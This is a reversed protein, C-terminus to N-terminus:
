LAPDSTLNRRPKLVAEAVDSAAEVEALLGRAALLDTEDLAAKLSNVAGLLKQRSADETADQKRSRLAAHAAAADEILESRILIARLDRHRDPAYFIERAAADMRDAVAAVQKAVDDRMATASRRLANARMHATTIAELASDIAYDTGGHRAQFAHRLQEADTWVWRRPMWAVVTLTGLCALGAAAVAAFGPFPLPMRMSWTFSASLVAAAIGAGWLMANPSM